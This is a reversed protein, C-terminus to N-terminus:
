EGFEIKVFEYLDKLEKIWIKKEIQPENLMNLEERLLSIEKELKEIGSTCVKGTPISRLYAYNLKNNVVDYKILEALLGPDDEMNTTAIAILASNPIANSKINSTVINRYPIFQNAKLIENFESNSKDCLGLSNFERLYRLKNESILLKLEVLIKQRDIRYRYRELRFEFWDNLLEKHNNYNVVTGDPRLVNIEDEIKCYLRFLIQIDDLYSEFWLKDRNIMPKIKDDWGDYLEIIINVNTDSLTDVSKVISALDGKETETNKTRKMILDKYTKNWVGIPLSYIHIVDFKRKNEPTRKRLVEYRGVSIYTERYESEPAGEVLSVTREPKFDYNRKEIEIVHSKLSDRIRNKSEENDVYNIFLLKLLYNYVSKFSRSWMTIKWGHATTKYNEIAIIPFIPLMYFPEIAKEEEEQYPLIMNDEKRYLLKYFNKNLKCEVYRAAGASGSNGHEGGDSRNGWKGVPIIVPYMSGGPYEQGSNQISELMSIEGHHYNTDGAIKPGITSLKEAKNKKLVKPLSYIVKTSVNNKGDPVKLLKRKLNDMFYQKVYIELFATITIYHKAYIALEGDTMERLPESLIRKREDAMNITIIEDGTEVVKFKGYYMELTKDAKSDWHFTYIYKDINRAIYEDFFTETGALGKYYKIRHTSPITNCKSYEEFERQTFFEVINMSEIFENSVPKGKLRRVEKKHREELDTPIIRIVPLNLIKVRKEKFLIPWKSLLVIILGTINWGDYDSDAACIFEDCMLSSLLAQDSIQDESVGSGVIFQKVFSNNEISKNFILKKIPKEGFNLKFYEFDENSFWNLKHFVNTVVGSTTLICTNDSNIKSGHEGISRILTKASGGECFFFYNTNDKRTSKPHYNVCKCFSDGDLINKDKNRKSRLEKNIVMEYIVKAIEGKYKDCVDKIDFQAIYEKDITFSEKIQGIWQPNPICGVMLFTFSDKIKIKGTNMKKSSCYEKVAKIFISKVASIIPNNIVEVGNIISMEKYDATELNNIGVVINLFDSLPVNSRKKRKITLLYSRNLEFMSNITDSNHISTTIERIKGFTIKPIKCTSPILSLEKAVNTIHEVYLKIQILRKMVYNNFLEKHTAFKSFKTRKWNITFSIKTYQLNPNTNTAIVPIAFVSVGDVKTMDQRYNYNKDVCEITLNESFATVITAGIGNTGGTIRNPDDDMNTGTKEDAFLIEPLYRNDGDKVTQIPIGFGDNFIRMSGDKPEINFDIWTVYRPQTTKDGRQQMTQKIVCNVFHDESNVILEDIVKFLSPIYTQEAFKFKDGRLIFCKNTVKESTGANVNKRLTFEENGLTKVIKSLDM